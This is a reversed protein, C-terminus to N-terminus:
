AKRRPRKTRHIECDPRPETRADLEANPIRQVVYGARIMTAVDSATTFSDGPADSTMLLVCGCAGVGIYTHTGIDVVDRPALKFKLTTSM